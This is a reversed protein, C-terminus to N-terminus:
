AAAVRVAIYRDLESRPVVIRRGIRAVRIRRRTVESWLLRPSIDLYVAAEDMRM